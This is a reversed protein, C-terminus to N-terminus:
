RGGRLPRQLETSSPTASSTSVHEGGISGRVAAGIAGPGGYFYVRSVSTHDAVYRVTPGAPSTSGFATRRHAASLSM